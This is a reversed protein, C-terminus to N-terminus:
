EDEDETENNKTKKSNKKNSKSPKLFKPANPMKIKPWTFNKVDEYLGNRWTEGCKVITQQCIEVTKFGRAALPASKQSCICKALYDDIQGTTREGVVLLVRLDNFNCAISSPMPDVSDIISCAFSWEGLCEVLKDKAHYFNERTKDLDDDEDAQTSALFFVFAFIQQIYFSYM